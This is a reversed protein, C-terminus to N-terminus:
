RGSYNVQGKDNFKLQISLNGFINVTITYKATLEYGNRVQTIKIDRAQIATVDQVDFRRQLASRIEMRAEANNNPLEINKEVKQLSQAINLHQMYAPTLKLLVLLIVSAIVAVILFGILSIGRYRRM